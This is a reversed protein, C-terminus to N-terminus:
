YLNFNYELQMHVSVPQGNRMAPVFRIQRAAAIARETLGMPLTNIARINIVEGTRSFVVRLSVTGTVQNRRAEETYHPEPKSLVRARVTVDRIAFIRNNENGLCGPTGCGPGGGHGRGGLENPGGGINGNEGPGIGPGSGEGVGLGRGSGFGGGHGSGNSTQQSQARPDGYQAVPLAKWLLPDINVGALPLSPNQPIIKLVPAPIESPLPIAGTQTPLRSKDGSGGGGRAPKSERNSGEGRGSSLGVRGTGKNSFGAASERPSLPLMTVLSGAEIVEVQASRDTSKAPDLLVACLGAILVITFSTLVATVRNTARIWQRTVSVSELM